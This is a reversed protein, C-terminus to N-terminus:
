STRWVTLQKFPLASVSLSTHGLDGSATTTYSSM